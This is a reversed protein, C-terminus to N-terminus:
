DRQYHGQHAQRLEFKQIKGTSTMPLAPLFVIDKPVEFGGLHEKCHATLAAESFDQPADPRRTVFATIAEGWREHPLGVVAANLVAPHRLLVEEVKLSPVNEGGSKVM